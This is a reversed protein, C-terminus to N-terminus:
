EQRPYSQPPTALIGKFTSSESLGRKGERIPWSCRQVDSQYLVLALSAECSSLDLNSPVSKKLSFQSIYGNAFFFTRILIGPELIYLVKLMYKFNYSWNLYHNRKKKFVYSNQGMGMNLDADRKHRRKKRAQAERKTESTDGTKTLLSM